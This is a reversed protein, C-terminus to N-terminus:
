CTTCPAPKSALGATGTSHGESQPLFRSWTDGGESEGLDVAATADASDARETTSAQQVTNEHLGQVESRTDGGASGDLAADLAPAVTDVRPASQPVSYTSHQISDVASWTDDGESAALAAQSALAALVVTALVHMKM